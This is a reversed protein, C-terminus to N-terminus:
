EEALLLDRINDYAGSPRMSQWCSLLRFMSSDRKMLTM